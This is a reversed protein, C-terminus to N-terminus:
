QESQGYPEPVKPIPPPFFFLFSVMLSSLHSLPYSCQGSNLPGPNLQWCGSPLEDWRHSLELPDRVWKQGRGAVPNCTACLCVYLHFM